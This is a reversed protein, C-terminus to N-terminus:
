AGIVLTLGPGRVYKGHDMKGVHEGSDQEEDQIEAVDEATKADAEAGEKLMACLQNRGEQDLGQISEFVSKVDDRPEPTEETKDNYENDM